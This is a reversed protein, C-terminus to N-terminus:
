EDIIEVLSEGFVDVIRQQLESASEEEEHYAFHVTAFIGTEAEIATAVAKEYEGHSFRNMFFEQSRDFGLVIKGEKPIRFSVVSQLFQVFLPGEEARDVIASWRTRLLEEESGESPAEAQKSRTQISQETGKEDRPPQQEREEGKARDATSPLSKKSTEADAKAREVATERKERSVPFSCDSGELAKLRRELREVRSILSERDVHDALRALLVEALPRESDSGRIRREYDLTIELCDAIEGAEFLNAQRRFESRVEESTEILNETDSARAMLLNRYHYVLESVFAGPSKGAGVIEDFRRLASGMDRDILADVLPFMLDEDVTGAISDVASLTLFREEMSTAQDLLSLADRMAGDAKRAILASAGEEMEVGIKKAVDELNAEIEEVSIKQFTFRQTRSAITAPIKELQTTALVFILHAPPEEMIKLLANFGETTIMHAEDIIYVKYKLKTPPYIVKDRLDRIDDIKRNSAADMEVVDMTTGDLISRCNECENCPNGDVPDLCNVARSLIKASSTKGTGRSGSFLYAHSLKGLVVQSKLIQIIPDQGRVEDFTMPRYERYLSRRM